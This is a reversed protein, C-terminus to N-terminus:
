EIRFLPQHEKVSEGPRVFLAALKGGIPAVIEIDMKMAEMMM